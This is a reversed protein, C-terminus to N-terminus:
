VYKFKKSVLDLTQEIKLKFAERIKLQPNLNYYNWMEEETSFWYIEVEKNKQNVVILQYNKFM